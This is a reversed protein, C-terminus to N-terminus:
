YNLYEKIVLSCISYDANRTADIKYTHSTTVVTYIATTYLGTTIDPLGISVGPSFNYEELIDAESTNNGFSVRGINIKQSTTSVCSISITTTNKRLITVRLYNGIYFSFTSGIRSFSRVKATSNDDYQKLIVVQGDSSYGILNDDYLINRPELESLEINAMGTLQFLRWTM